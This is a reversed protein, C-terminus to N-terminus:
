GLYFPRQAERGWLRILRRKREPEPWDEYAERRHGLRRNNVLQVQGREFTFAKGLGPRDLIEGFSTIAARTADDMDGDALEYGFELLRRSFRIHVGREAPECIPNFALRKDGPAHEHQRDFYFRHYLRQIVEPHEALLINFVTQMSILGSTGGTMAPQVCLLSVIDPPLNFANDTHYYQGNKTKSSRVGNGPEDQKGTDTVEYVMTGDWKQAVPRCVRSFLLWYLKVAIEEDLDDLPLRDLIAFGVGEFLKRRIRAMVADCASLDLHGPRLAEVPLRNAQLEGAARILEDRCAADLHFRSGDPVLTEARWAAADTIAETRIDTM